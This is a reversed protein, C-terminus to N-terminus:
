SQPSYKNVIALIAAEALSAALAHDACADDKAAITFFGSLHAIV